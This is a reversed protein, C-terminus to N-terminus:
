AALLLTNSKCTREDIVWTRQQQILRQRCKVQFKAFCHLNFQFTNLSFYSDTEDKNRMILTLREGHAIADRDHALAM